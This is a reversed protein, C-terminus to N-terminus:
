ATVSRNFWAGEATMEISTHRRKYRALTRRQTQTLGMIPGGMGGGYTLSYGDIAEQRVNTPNRAHQAVLESAVTKINQPASALGYTYTVVVTARAGGWHGCLRRLPGWKNVKIDALDVASGNVTVSAVDIVPRYPLWLESGAVGDVTVEADEVVGDFVVDPLEEAIAGDAIAALADFHGVEDGTLQRLLLAEVTLQDAISM